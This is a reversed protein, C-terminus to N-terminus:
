KSALASLNNPFQFKLRFKKKKKKGGKQSCKLPRNQQIAALIKARSIHKKLKINEPEFNQMRTCVKLSCITQLDQIDILHCQLKKGKLLLM